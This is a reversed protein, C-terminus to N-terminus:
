LQSCNGSGTGQLAVRWLKLHHAGSSIPDVRSGACFISSFGPGDEVRERFSIGLSSDLGKFEIEPQFWLSWSPPRRPHISGPFDSICGVDDRPQM